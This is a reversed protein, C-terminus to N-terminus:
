LKSLPNGAYGVVWANYEMREAFYDWFEWQEKQYLESYSKCMKKFDEVATHLDAGQVLSVTMKMFTRIYDARYNRTYKREVVPCAVWDSFGLYGKAKQTVARAGLRSLTSCSIAVVVAGSLYGATDLDLLVREKYPIQGMWERTTGHGFYLFLQFDQKNLENVFNEYRAYDGELLTVAMGESKLFDILSRAATSSTATPLDYHPAIIIANKGAQKQFTM